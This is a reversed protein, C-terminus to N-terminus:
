KGGSKECIFPFSKKPMHNIFQCKGKVPCRMTLKKADKGSQDDPLRRGEGQFNTPWLRHDLSLKRGSKWQWQDDDVESCDVCEAGLWVKTKGDKPMLHNKAYDLEANTDLSALHGGLGVCAAEAKGYTAAKSVYTYRFEFDKLQLENELSEIARQKEAIDHKLNAIETAHDRIQSKAYAVDRQLQKIQTQMKSQNDELTQFRTEIMSMLKSLDVTVPFIPNTDKTARTDRQATQRLSRNLRSLADRMHSVNLDRIRATVTTNPQLEPQGDSIGLQLCVLILVTFINRLLKM